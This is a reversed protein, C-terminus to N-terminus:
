AAEEKNQTVNWAGMKELLANAEADSIEGHSPIAVWGANIRHVPNAQNILKKHQQNLVDLLDTHYYQSGSNIWLGQAYEQGLQDRCIVALYIDWQYPVSNIADYVERTVDLRQKHKISWSEVYDNSALYCLATDKLVIAAFKRYHGVASYKKNRKKTKSGM